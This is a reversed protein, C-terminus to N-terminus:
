RHVGVNVRTKWTQVGNEKLVIFLAYTGSGILRGSQSRGNWTYEFLRSRNLMPVELVKNGVADFIMIHATFRSLNIAYRSLVKIVTFSTATMPNPWIQVMWQAPPEIVDLLVPNNLKNSQVN